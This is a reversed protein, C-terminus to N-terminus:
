ELFRDAPRRRVLINHVSSVVVQRDQNLVEIMIRAIGRDPKSGSPRAELCTFRISLTDGVRAPNQFRVDDWGLGAMVAADAEPSSQILAGQIAVIHYGSATLGGFVSAAAAELDLHFPQPDYQRAFAMIEDATVEYAGHEFSEGVTYDEFYKVTRGEWLAM